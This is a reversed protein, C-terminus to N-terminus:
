TRAAELLVTWPWVSDIVLTRPKWPDADLRARVAEEDPADVVLMARHGDGGLPGGLVIFGEATLRDMFEAHADWGPQERMDRDNDWDPGPKHIVVFRSVAM